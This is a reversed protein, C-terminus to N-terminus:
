VCWRVRVSAHAKLLFCLHIWLSSIDGCIHHQRRVEDEHHSGIYLPLRCATLSWRTFALSVVDVDVASYGQLSCGVALLWLVAVSLVRDVLSLVLSRFLVTLRSTVTLLSWGLALRFESVPLELGARSRDIGGGLFCDSSRVPSLSSLCDM